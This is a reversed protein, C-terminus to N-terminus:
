MAEVNMFVHQQWERSILTVGSSSQLSLPFDDEFHLVKWDHPDHLYVYKHLVSVFEHDQGACKKTFHGLGANSFTVRLVVLQSEVDEVGKYVQKARELADEPNERLGIYNKSGSVQRAKLVGTSDVIGRDDEFVAVYLDLGPEEVSRLLEVVAGASAMAVFSYM